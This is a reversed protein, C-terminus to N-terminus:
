VSGVFEHTRYTAVIYYNHSRDKRGSEIWVALSGISKGIIIICCSRYKREPDARSPNHARSCVEM